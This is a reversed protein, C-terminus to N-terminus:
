GGHKLTDEKAKILLGHKDAERRLMQTTLFFHDLNDEFDRTRWEKCRDIMKLLASQQESSMWTSIEGYFHYIGKLWALFDGEHMANNCRHIGESIRFLTDLAMNWESEVM